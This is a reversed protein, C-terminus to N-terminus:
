CFSGSKLIKINPNRQDQLEQTSTQSAICVSFVVGSTSSTVEFMLSMSLIPSFMVVYFLDNRFISLANKTLPFKHM